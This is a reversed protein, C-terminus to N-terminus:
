RGILIGAYLAGALGSLFALVVLSIVRDVRDTLSM